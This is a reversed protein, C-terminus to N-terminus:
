WNEELDASSVRCSEGGRYETRMEDTRTVRNKNGGLWFGESTAKLDQVGDGEQYHRWRVECNGGRPRRACMSRLEGRPSDATSSASEPFEATQTVASAQEEAKKVEDQHSETVDGRVRRETVTLAKSTEVIAEVVKRKQTRTGKRSELVSSRFRSTQEEDLEESDGDICAKTWNSEGM